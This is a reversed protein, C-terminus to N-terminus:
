HLSLNVIRDVGFYIEIELGGLPDSGFVLAMAYDKVVSVSVTFSPYMKGHIQSSVSGKPGGAPSMIALM